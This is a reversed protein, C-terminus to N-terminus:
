SCPSEAAKNFKHTHIHTHSYGDPSSLFHKNLSAILQLIHLHTGEAYTTSSHITLISRQYFSVPLSFGIHGSHFSKLHLKKEVRGGDLYFYTGDTAL